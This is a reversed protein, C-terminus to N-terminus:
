PDIREIEINSGSASEGLGYAGAGRQGDRSILVRLRGTYGGGQWVAELVHDTLIGEWRRGDPSTAMVKRGQTVFSLEYREPGFLTTATVRWRGDLSLFEPAALQAAMRKVAQAQTSGQCDFEESETDVRAETELDYLAMTLTCRDGVSILEARVVHSASVARGLEIQTEEARGAGFAARKEESLRAAADADQVVQFWPQEDLRTRILATMQRREVPTLLSAADELPPVVITRTLIGESSEAAALTPVKPTGTIACGSVLATLVLLGRRMSRVSARRSRSGNGATGRGSRARPPSAREVDNFAEAKMHTPRRERLRPPALYISPLQM